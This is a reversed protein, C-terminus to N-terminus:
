TIDKMRLHELLQVLVIADHSNVGKIYHEIETLTNDVGHDFWEGYSSFTTKKIPKCNKHAEIFGDMQSMTDDMAIVTKIARTYGCYLCEMRQTSTNHIVHKSM